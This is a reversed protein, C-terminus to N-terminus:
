DEQGAAMIKNAADDVRRRFDDPLTPEAQLWADRYKRYHLWQLYRGRESVGLKRLCMIATAAAELEWLCQNRPTDDIPKDSYCHGLVIHAMEHFGAAAPIDSVPLVAMRNGTSYGHLIDRGPRCGLEEPKAPDYPVQTIGLRKLARAKSWM